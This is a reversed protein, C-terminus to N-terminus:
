LELASAARRLYDPGYKAYVRFTTRVDSHGLYSAIEEMPTGGEAMLVAASHRLVHPSCKLGARRAAEGIGKKISVVPKGGWEIVHDCTATQRAESLAHLATDNIPVTARGKNTAPMAPNMLVIRRRNLDVRDWTLDLIAGARAATTIALIVFLKVHPMTAADRLRLVEDRTLRHDRPAPKAPLPIFPAKALWGEKEAFRLAARLYGLEIHVTGLSAIKARRNAYSQCLGKTIQHPLLGDFSYALRKWADRIRPAAAKGAAERDSAYAAYIAAV